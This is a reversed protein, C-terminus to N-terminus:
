GPSCSAHTVHQASELATPQITHFQLIQASFWLNRDPSGLSLRSCLCHLTCTEWGGTGRVREEQEESEPHNMVWPLTESDVDPEEFSPLVRRIVQPRGLICTRVWHNHPTALFGTSTALKELCPSDRCGSFPSESTMAASENCSWLAGHIRRAVNAHWSM